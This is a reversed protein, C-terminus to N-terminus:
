VNAEAPLGQWMVQFLARMSAAIAACRIVIGGIPPVLSYIMVSDAYIQIDIRFDFLPDKIIRSERLAKADSKWLLNAEDSNPVIAVYRSRNRIRKEIFKKQIDPFVRFFDLGSCIAFIDKKVGEAFRINLLIDDHVQRFGLAGEFYLIEMDKKEGALQALLPVMKEIDESLQRQRFSLTEPALAFFKLRRGVKVKNLFGRQLLRQLTIDVTSRAAGIERAIEHAFLGDKNKLCALYLRIERDRLGMRSLLLIIDKHM